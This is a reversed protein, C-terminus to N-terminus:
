EGDPAGANDVVDVPPIAGNRAKRTRKAKPATEVLHPGAKGNPAKGGTARPRGRGRKAEATPKLTDAIEAQGRLWATDWRQHAETGPSYTNSDRRRGGKGAEFGELDISKLTHVNLAARNPDLEPDMTAQFGVPKLQWEMMRAYWRDEEERIEGSQGAAVIARKWVKVPIGASKVAQDLAKRDALAELVRQDVTRKRDLFQLFTAQTVNSQEPMM